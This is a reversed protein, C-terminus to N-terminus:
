EDREAVETLSMIDSPRIYMKRGAPDELVLWETWFSGKSASSGSLGAIRMNTLAQTQCEMRSLMGPRWVIDYRRNLDLSGSLNPLAVGAITKPKRSNLWAVVIFLSVISAPVGICVVGLGVDFPTSM